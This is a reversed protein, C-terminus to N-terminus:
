LNNTFSLTQSYLTPDDINQRPCGRMFLGAILWQDPEHPFIFFLKQGPHPL